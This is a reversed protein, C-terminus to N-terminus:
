AVRQRRWRGLGVAGLALVSLAGPAPVEGVAVRDGVMGYAYRKFTFLNAPVGQILELEAWGYQTGGGLDFRFGVYGGANLFQSNSYGNGWAMDGRNGAAVGFAQTSLAAGYALNSPYFYAGSGFGAIDMNGTGVMTLQGVSTGTENFAAQFVFSAGAGGFGYPGFVDFYGDGQSSDILDVNVDVVTIAGDAEATMLGGTAAAAAGAASYAAWRKASLSTIDRRNM